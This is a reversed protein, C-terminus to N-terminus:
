YSVRSYLFFNLEGHLSAEVTIVHEEVNIRKLILTTGVGRVSKLEDPETTFFYFTIM